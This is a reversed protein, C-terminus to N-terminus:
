DSLTVESETASEKTPDIRPRDVIGSNRTYVRATVTTDWNPSEYVWLRGRSHGGIVTTAAINQNSVCNDSSLSSSASDCADSKSTSPTDSPGKDHEETYEGFEVDDNEDPNWGVLNTLNVEYFPIRDLPVNDATYNTSTTPNNYVGGPPFDLYIGRAQMHSTTVGIIKHDLTDVGEINVFNSVVGSLSGDVTSYSILDSFTTQTGLIARVLSTVYSSYASINRVQITSTMDLATNQPTNDFFSEPIVNFGIMKWPEFYRLVGNIRKLRCIKTTVSSSGPNDRCCVTCVFGKNDNNTIDPDPYFAAYSQSSTIDVLSGFDGVSLDWTTSGVIHNTGNASDAGECECAVTTFDERKVTDLSAKYTVTEFSVAINDGFKDLDPEPKSTEKLTGDVGIKIPVVDPAALPTYPIVPSQGGTSESPDSATLSPGYADIATDFSVSQRDGGVSDWSIYVTALKFDPYLSGAPEVSTAVSNIATHYYDNVAWSVSYVINGVTINTPGTLGGTNDAIHTFALSTPTSLTASWTDANTVNNTTLNVFRRLDDIKKHALTAAVSRANADSGSRLLSTQLKSVALIGISLVLVAIMVEILSFGTQKPLTKNKM